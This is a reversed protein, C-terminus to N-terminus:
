EHFLAEMLATADRYDPIVLHAGADILQARKLPDMRGSGHQDEDSAVAV